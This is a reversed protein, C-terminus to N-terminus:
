GVAKKTKGQRAFLRDARSMEVQESEGAALDPNATREMAATFAAAGVGAGQGEAAPAAASAKPEEPLKALFATAQDATMDTELAAALAAVPRAQGADSNLIATIRDKQATMGTTTGAATATASATAVAEDLQAQTFDAMTEDGTNLDLSASFDALADDLSGIKDALGNSLADAASFTLAETDRVVQEDLGRNTAVTSVFVDYLTDIRAQIRAKVDDSLAEYPNGDVKHAGAHIFTIKWGREDMAKSVDVHSTVVGISGVGGTRTVYLRGPDVVSIAAYAASYASEAAFGAVPKQGRMAVMKDTMDFCGAVMGGPSDVILAIGRVNVDGMGRQFARWIYDYGTAWSGFAYPFDHLLVGKVPIQLVGDRVVYPRVYSLFSDPEGWWDAGEADAREGNRRLDATVQTMQEAAGHVCAEFWAHSEPVVMTPENQFRALIPNLSM